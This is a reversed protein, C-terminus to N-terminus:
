AQTVTSGPLKITDQCKVVAAAAYSEFYFWVRKGIYSYTTTDQLCM